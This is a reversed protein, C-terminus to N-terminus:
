ELMRGFNEVFTLLDTVDVSDDLVFDCRIDYNADGPVSGFADVFILLDTVDVGGNGDIDCPIHTGFTWVPGETQGASNTAVVKWYYRTGEALSPAFAAETLGSAAVAIPPNVTDFYVDFTTGAAVGSWSLSTSVPLDLQGDSPSPNSPAPPPPVVITLSFDKTSSLGNGGTVQATFTATTATDPTGTITGSTSLDLGSPLSGSSIAWTYPTTGGSATLTQSYATGVLGSPLPSSTTITPPTTVFFASTRIGSQADPNTVVVNWFGVAAGSL